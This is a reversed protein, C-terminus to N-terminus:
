SSARHEQKNPNDFRESDDWSVGKCWDVSRQLDLAHQRIKVAGRELVNTFRRWQIRHKQTRRMDSYNIALKTDPPVNEFKIEKPKDESQLAKRWQLDKVDLTFKHYSRRDRIRQAQSPKVFVSGLRNPNFAGAFPGMVRECATAYM